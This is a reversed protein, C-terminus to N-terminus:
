NADRLVRHFFKLVNDKRVYENVKNDVFWPQEIMARYAEENTDLEIIKEIVKDLNEYAHCNVFSKTNFDLGIAPNGWHIPISNALMPDVIKESVYGPWQANEFALVFKYDKIFNIKHPGSQADQVIGTAGPIDVGMNNLHHGVSDVKKYECLKHFFADRPTQEHPYAKGLLVCCFKRNWLSDFSPKPQTLKDMDGYFAYIPLRYHRPDDTFDYTMCADYGDYNPRRLEAPFLVRPCKYNLHSGGPITCIVLDPDKKIDFRHGVFDSVVVEINYDESLIDRFYAVPDPWVGWNCYFDVFGVKLNKKM